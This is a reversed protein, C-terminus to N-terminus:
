EGKETDNPSTTELRVKFFTLGDDTLKYVSTPRRNADYGTDRTVLKDLVIGQKQCWRNLSRMVPPLGRPEIELIQAAAETTLGKTAPAAVLARLFAKVKINLTQDGARQTPGNNARPKQPKKGSLASQVELAESLTDTEIVGTPLVRYPM